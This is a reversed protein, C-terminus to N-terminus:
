EMGEMLEAADLVMERSGAWQRLAEWEPGDEEGRMYVDQFGWAGAVRDVLTREDERLWRERLSTGKAWTIRDMQDNATAVAVVGITATFGVYAIIGAFAINTALQPDMTTQYDAFQLALVYAAPPTLAFATFPLLAKRLMKNRKYASTCVSVEIISLALALNKSRIAKSLATQALVLPIASSASNPNASKYKIPNTGMLPIPKSAFLDFIEPFSDPRDLIAQTYVYMALIKPTIFVKSDTMIEYAVESIKQVVETRIPTTLSAPPFATNGSATRGEDMSLLNSTPSKESKPSVKQPEATEVLTRALNECIQLAEIVATEEPIQDTRLIAIAQSLATDIVRDETSLENLFRASPKNRSFAISTRM